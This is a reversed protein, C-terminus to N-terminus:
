SARLAWEGELERAAADLVGPHHHWGVWARAERALAAARGPQELLVQLGAAFDEPGDALVLERGGQVELGEAGVPTAVVPCGHAFAELIKIRTGGGARLPAVVVDCERYALALDEVEGLWRLGPRGGFEAAHAAAGRGAVALVAKRGIRGGLRPLVAELMHRVADRNPAHGLSGVFLFVAEGGHERPGRWSPEAPIEVVNPWVRSAVGWRERLLASERLSATVVRHFKPLLRGERRRYFCAADSGGLGAVAMRERAASELEDLDLWVPTRGGLARFVWPALYFRFCWALAPRLADVDKRLEEGEAPAPERWEDPVPGDMWRRWAPVPRAPVPLRKWGACCAAVAAPLEGREPGYLDIVRLHVQFRGALARVHQAARMALGHGQFDPVVPSFFVLNRM